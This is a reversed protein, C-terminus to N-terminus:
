DLVKMIAIALTEAIKQSQAVAVAGVVGTLLSVGIFSGVLKHAIKM